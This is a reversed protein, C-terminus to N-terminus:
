AAANSIELNEIVKDLLAEDQGALGAIKVYRIAAANSMQSTLLGVIRTIQPNQPLDHSPGITASELANIRRVTSIKM